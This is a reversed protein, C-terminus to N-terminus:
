RPTLPPPSVYSGPHENHETKLIYDLIKEHALLTAEITRLRLEYGAETKFIKEHDAAGSILFTIVIGLRVFVALLGASIVPLMILQMIARIKTCKKDTADFNWLQVWWNVLRHRALADDYPPKDDHRHRM